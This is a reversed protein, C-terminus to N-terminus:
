QFSIKIFRPRYLNPNIKIQNFFDFSNVNYSILLEGPGSLNPHAKANYTFYRKNEKVEPCEWLQIVPGFPGTPSLGLRLGVSSSMGDVQFVLAYRGDPLPTLSLENSARGAINAV